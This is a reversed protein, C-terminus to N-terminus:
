KVVDGHIFDFLKDGVEIVEHDAQNAESRAKKIGTILRDIRKLLTAKDAPTMRGSKYTTTYVGMFTDKKILEAQARHKDTAEALTIPTDVKISRNKDEPDTQFYGIGAQEDPEYKRNPDLTPIALYIQRVEKLHKELALLSTGSFEGFETDDVVLNAKVNGASNTEEKSIVADISAIIDEKSYLLKEAVTTVIHKTENPMPEGGEEVPQYTKNFGDFHEMRTRFTTVTEQMILRAKDNLPQIVALLQHFQM